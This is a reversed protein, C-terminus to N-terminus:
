SNSPNNAGSGAKEGESDISCCIIIKVHGIISQTDRQALICITYSCDHLNNYLNLLTIQPSILEMWRGEHIFKDPM